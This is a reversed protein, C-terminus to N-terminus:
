NIKVVSVRMNELGHSKITYSNQMNKIKRDRGYNGCLIWEVLNENQKRDHKQYKQTFIFPWMECLM